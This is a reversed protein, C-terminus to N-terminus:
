GDKNEFEYTDQIYKVDMASDEEVFALIGKRGSWNLLCQYFRQGPHEIAYTVFSALVRSNRNEKLEKM